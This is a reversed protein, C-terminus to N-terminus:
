CSRDHMSSYEPTAAAPISKTYVGIRATIASSINDLHVFRSVFYAKWKPPSNKHLDQFPRIRRAKQYVPVADRLKATIRGTKM